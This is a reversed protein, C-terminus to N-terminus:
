RGDNPQGGATAVAVVRDVVQEPTLDDVDVIVDAVDRYLPERQASLRRLAAGPDDDLLPRHGPGGATEIRRLLVPASARLWVVTVRPRRLAQRNEEALVVGGAAAIVAPEPQDLAGILAATELPRYGAEGDTAFIERVTRGAAAEVLEDSDFFGRGLREAVARGVTTKGTAMMGVLVLHDSV